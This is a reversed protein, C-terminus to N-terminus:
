RRGPRPLMRRIGIVALGLLGALLCALHLHSLSVIHWLPNADTFPALPRIDDHMVGDLVIHSYSGLAAGWAIQSRTLAKWHWLDPLYHAMRITLAFLAMTALMILTAGALTHCFRHLPFQHTLLYFGPEIDILVNAAGFALFSIRGPAAAHLAAGPGFHFPTIPM